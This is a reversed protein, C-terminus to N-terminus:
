ILLEKLVKEKVEDYHYDLFKLAAIMKLSSHENMVKLYNFGLDSFMIKEQYKENYNFKMGKVFSKVVENAFNNNWYSTHALIVSRKGWIKSNDFIM